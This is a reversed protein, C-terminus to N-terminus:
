SDNNLRREKSYSLGCNLHRIPRSHGSSPAVTKRLYGGAQSGLGEPPSAAESNSLAAVM